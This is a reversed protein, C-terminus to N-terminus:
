LPHLLGAADECFLRLHVRRGDIAQRMERLRTEDPVQSREAENPGRRSFADPFRIIRAM